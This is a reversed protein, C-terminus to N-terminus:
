GVVLFYLYSWQLLSFVRKSVVPLVEYARFLRKVFPSPLSRLGREPIVQPGFLDLPRSVRVPRSGNRANTAHLYRGPCPLSVTSGLSRM